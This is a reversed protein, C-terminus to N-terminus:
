CLSFLKHVKYQINCIYHRIYMTLLKVLNMSLKLVIRFLINCINIWGYCSVHIYKLSIAFNQPFFINKHKAM